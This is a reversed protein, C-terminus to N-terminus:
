VSGQRATAARDGDPVRSGSGSSWRFALPTKAPRTCPTARSYRRRVPHWCEFRGPWPIVIDALPRPHTAVVDGARDLVTYRALGPDVIWLDGAPGFAVGFANRFEGPGSGQRGTRFILKGASDFVSVRSSRRDLVALRGDRQDVALGTIQGFAAPGEQTGLRFDERAQLVPVDVMDTYSVRVVGSALTDVAATGHRDREPACGYSAITVAVAM